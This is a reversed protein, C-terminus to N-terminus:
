NVTIPFTLDLDTEGDDFASTASKLEPQHKLVIHFTNTVSTATSIATWETTLGIPLNNEDKDKYNVADGRNDMNGNGAPSSFVNGTWAFYFQHEDGENLVEASINYEDDTPEALENLMDVTLTYTIGKNLKIEGNIAISQPGEGDPDTATVKIVSAGTGAAPTFTLTAKTILEPIDEKVPDDDQCSTLLLISPAILLALIRSIRKM